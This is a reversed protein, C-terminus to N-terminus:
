NSFMQVGQIGQHLDDITSDDDKWFKSYSLDFGFKTYDDDIMNAYHTPSNEWLDYLNKAILKENFSQYVNTDLSFMALNEGVIHYEYATGEFVTNWQKGNADRVHNMMKNDNDFFRISGNDSLEKARIGSFYYLDDSWELQHKGLRAREENVLKLVELGVNKHNIYAGDNFKDITQDSFPIFIRVREGDRRVVFSNEFDQNSRKEIESQGLSAIEAGNLRVDENFKLVNLNSLHGNFDYLDSKSFLKNTQLRQYYSVSKSLNSTESAQANATLLSLGLMSSLVVAKTLKM